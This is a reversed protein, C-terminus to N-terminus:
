LTCYEEFKNLAYQLGEPTEALLVTDDAYLLIMLKIPIGIEKEIYNNVTSLGTVNNDSLYAEVDTM